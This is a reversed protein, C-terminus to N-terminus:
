LSLLSSEQVRERSARKQSEAQSFFPWSFFLSSSSGAASSPLATSVAPSVMVSAAGVDGLHLPFFFSLELSLQLSPRPELIDTVSFPLRCPM